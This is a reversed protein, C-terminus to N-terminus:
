IQNCQNIIGYNICRLWHPHTKRHKKKKLCFVAYSISVHSSNLRTSKRDPAEGHAKAAAVTEVVRDAVELKALFPTRDFPLANRASNASISASAMSLVPVSVVPCGSTVLYLNEEDILSSSSMSIIMVRSYTDFCE